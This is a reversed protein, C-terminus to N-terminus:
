FQFSALIVLEAGHAAVNLRQSPFQIDRHAEWIASLELNLGDGVQFLHFNLPKLGHGGGSVDEGDLAGVGGAASSGGLYLNPAAPGHDAVRCQRCRKIVDEGRRDLRRWREPPLAFRRKITPTPRHASFKSRARKLRGSEM